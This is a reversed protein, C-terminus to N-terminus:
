RGSGRKSKNEVEEPSPIRSFLSEYETIKDGLWKHIAKMQMPDIILEAEITRQITMRSPALTPSELVQDARREETYIIAELGGPMIGGFIGSVHIRKYSSSYGSRVTPMESM